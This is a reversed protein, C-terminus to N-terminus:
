GELQVVENLETTAQQFARGGRSIWTAAAAFNAASALNGSRQWDAMARRYYGGADACHPIPHAKALQAAAAMDAGDQEVAIQEGAGAAKAVRREDRTVKTFYTFGMTNDKWALMKQRCSSPSPPASTAPVGASSAAVPEPAPKGFADALAGIVLLAGLVSGAIIWGRRSKRPRQHGRQQQGPPRLHPPYGPAPPPYGPTPPQQQYGYAPQPYGDWSQEQGPWGPQQSPPFAPRQPFVQQGQGPAGLSQGFWAEPQSDQEGDQRPAFRPDPEYRPDDQWPPNPPYTM